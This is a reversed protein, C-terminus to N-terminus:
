PFAVVEHVAFGGTVRSRWKTEDLLLASAPVLARLNQGLIGLATTGIRGRRIVHEDSMPPPGEDTREGNRFALATSFSESRWDIWVFSESETLARGWRLTRLPLRWPPITLRLHEVYGLGSLTRGDLSASVDARPLHCRWRVDGERSAYLTLEDIARERRSWTGRLGLADVSVADPMEELHGRRLSTRQRATGDPACSLVSAYDVGVPGLELRALYAIALAGDDAVVDAYWKALSFGNTM